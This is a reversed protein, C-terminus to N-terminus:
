SAISDLFVLSNAFQCVNIIVIDFLCSTYNCLMNCLNRILPMVSLSISNIIVKRLKGM